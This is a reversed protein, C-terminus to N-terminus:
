RLLVHTKQIVGPHGCNWYTQLYSFIPGWGTLTISSTTTIIITSPSLQGCKNFSCTKIRWGDTLFDLCLSSLGLPM